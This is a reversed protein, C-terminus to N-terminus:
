QNQSLEFRSGIFGLDIDKYPDFSTPYMRSSGILRVFLLGARVHAPVRVLYSYMRQEPLVTIEKIEVLKTQKKLAVIQLDNVNFWDQTFTQTITPYVDAGKIFVLDFVIPSNQNAGTEVVTNVSIVKGFTRELWTGYLPLEAINSPPPINSAANEAGGGQGKKLPFQKVVKETTEYGSKVKQAGSEVNKAKTLYSETQSSTNTSSCHLCGLAAGCLFVWKKIRNKIMM